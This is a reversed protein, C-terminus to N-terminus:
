GYTTFFWFINYISCLWRYSPPEEDFESEGTIDSIAM